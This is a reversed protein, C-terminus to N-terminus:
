LIHINAGRYVPDHSDQHDDNHSRYYLLEHIPSQNSICQHLFSTSSSNDKCGKNKRQNM